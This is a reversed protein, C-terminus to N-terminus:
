TVLIDLLPDAWAMNNNQGEQLYFRWNTQEKSTWDNIYGLESFDVRHLDALIAGIKESHAAHIEHAKLNQGDHWDFVLYFQEYLEQLSAGHFTKAPLAPIHDAAIDAIRESMVFNLKATPRAMIQPNLAKIAYKGKTTEVAYMRHLFGGSIEKPASVPEGLQLRMCLNELQLNYQNEGM